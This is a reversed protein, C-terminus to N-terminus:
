IVPDPNRNRQSKLSIQPSQIEPGSAEKKSHNVM